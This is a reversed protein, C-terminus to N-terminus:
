SQVMLSFCPTILRAFMCNAGVHRLTQTPHYFLIFRGLLGKTDQLSLIHKEWQSKM